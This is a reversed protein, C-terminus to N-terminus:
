AAKVAPEAVAHALRGLIDALDARQQPDRLVGDEDLAEGARAVPLECDIVRAGLAGLVKRAEAQAWVAGFMSTSAGPVAHERYVVV